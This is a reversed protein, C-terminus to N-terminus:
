GTITKVCMMRGMYPEITASIYSSSFNNGYGVITHGNGGTYVQTPFGSGLDTLQQSGFYRVPMLIPMTPLAPVSSSDLYYDHRMSGKIIGSWSVIGADEFTAPGGPSDHVVYSAGQYNKAVHVPITFSSPKTAYTRWWTVLGAVGTDELPSEEVLYLSGNGPYNTNLQQEAWGNIHQVFKQKVVLAGTLYPIPHSWIFNGVPTVQANNAVQNAYFEGDYINPQAFVAASMKEVFQVQIKAAGNQTFVQGISTVLMPIGSLSFSDGNLVGSAASNFQVTMTGTLKNTSYAAKYTPGGADQFEIGKSGKEFQIDEAILVGASNFTIQLSGHKVTQGLPADIITAPQSM